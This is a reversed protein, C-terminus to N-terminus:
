SNEDKAENWEVTQKKHTGAIDNKFFNRKKKTAVEIIRFMCKGCSSFHIHKKKWLLIRKFEARVRKAKHGFFFLSLDASMRPSTLLIELQTSTGQGAGEVGVGVEVGVGKGRGAPWEPEAPFSCCRHFIIKLKKAKARRKTQSSCSWGDEPSSHVESCCCCLVAEVPCSSSPGSREM